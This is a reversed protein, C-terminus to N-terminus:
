LRVATLVLLLAVAICLAVETAIIYTIRNAYLTRHESDTTNLPFDQVQRTGRDHRCAYASRNDTGM